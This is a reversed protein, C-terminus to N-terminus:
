LFRKEKQIIKALYKAEEDAEKKRKKIGVAEKLGDLGKSGFMKLFDGHHRGFPQITDRTHDRTYQKNDINGNIRHYYVRKGCNICVEKLMEFNDVVATFECYINKECKSRDM